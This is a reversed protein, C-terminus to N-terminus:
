EKSGHTYETKVNWPPGSPSNHTNKDITSKRIIEKSKNNKTSRTKCNFKTQCFENCIHGDGCIDWVTYILNFDMDKFIPNTKIFLKDFSGNGYKEDYVKKFESAKRIITNLDKEIKGSDMAIKKIKAYEPTSEINQFGYMITLWLVESFVERFKDDLVFDMVAIRPFYKEFLQNVFELREDPNFLDFFGVDIAGFLTMNHIYVCGDNRELLLTLDRTPKFDQGEPIRQQSKIMKISSLSKKDNANGVMSHNIKIMSESVKPKCEPPTLAFLIGNWIESKKDASSGDNAPQDTWNLWVYSPNYDKKPCSVPIEFLIENPKDVFQLDEPNFVTLRITINSELKELGAAQVVVSRGYGVLGGDINYKSYLIGNGSVIEWKWEVNDPFYKGIRNSKCESRCFLSLWDQDDEHKAILKIRRGPLLTDIQMKIGPTNLKQYENNWVGDADCTGRTMGTVISPKPFHFDHNRRKFITGKVKYMLPQGYSQSLTISIEKIVTPDKLQGECNDEIYLKLSVNFIKAPQGKAPISVLDPHYITCEGEDERKFNEFHGTGESLEWRFKVCSTLIFANSSKTEQCSGNPNCHWNIMDADYGDACLIIGKEASVWQDIMTSQIPNQGDDFYKLGALGGDMTYGISLDFSLICEPAKNAPSEPATSIVKAEIGTAVFSNWFQTVGADIKEKVEEPLNSITAGSKSEYQAYVRGEFDKKVYPKDTIIAFPIWISQQVVSTYELTSDQIPTNIERTKLLRSAAAEVNELITVFITAITEPSSAPDITGDIPITTGPWTPYIGIRKTTDPKYTHSNKIDPIVDPNFLPLPVKDNIVFSHISDKPNTSVSSTGVPLWSDVPPFQDGDPVPPSHIDACYGSLPITISKNQPVINGGPIRAVYSQYQGSSPIYFTQTIIELPINNYNVVKIDAIHGTTQGTSLVDIKVNVAKNFSDIGVNPFNVSLKNRELITKGNFFNQYCLPNEKERKVKQSILNLIISIWNSEKKQIRFGTRRNEKKSIENVPHHWDERLLTIQNVNLDKPTEEIQELEICRHQIKNFIPEPFSFKSYSSNDLFSKLSGTNHLANLVISCIGIIVISILSIFYKLLM